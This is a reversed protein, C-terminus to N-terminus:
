VNTVNLVNKGAWMAARLIPTDAPAVTAGIDVDEFVRLDYKPKTGFLSMKMKVYMATQVISRQTDDFLACVNDLSQVQCEHKVLRTRVFM